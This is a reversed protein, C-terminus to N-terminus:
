LHVYRIEEILASLARALVVIPLVSEQSFLAGIQYVSSVRENNRYLECFSTDLRDVVVDVFPPSVQARFSADSSRM